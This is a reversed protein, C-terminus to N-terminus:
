EGESALKDALQHAADPMEGLEDEPFSDVPEFRYDYTTDKDDKVDVRRHSLGCRTGRGEGRARGQGTLYGREVRVSKGFQFGTGDPNLASKRAM